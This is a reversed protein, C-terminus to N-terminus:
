TMYMRTFADAPYDSEPYTELENTNLLREGGRVVGASVGKRRKGGMNRVRSSNRLDGGRRNSPKRENV